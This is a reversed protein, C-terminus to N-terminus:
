GGWLKLLIAGAALGLGLALVLWLPINVTRNKFM